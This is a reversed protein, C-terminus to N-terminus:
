KKRIEASRTTGFLPHDERKKRFLPHNEGKKALSM